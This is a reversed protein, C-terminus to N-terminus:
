LWLSRSTKGSREEVEEARGGKGEEGEDEGEGRGEGGKEEKKEIWSRMYSLSAGLKSELWPHGQVGTRKGRSRLLPIVTAAVWRVRNKSM